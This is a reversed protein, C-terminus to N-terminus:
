LMEKLQSTIDEATESTRTVVLVTDDGAVCGLVDENDMRDISMGVTSAGGPVTKIVVLNQAPTISLVAHRYINAINSSFRKVHATEKVYRQRGKDSIKVLGLEKIDRSVTAQTVAFGSAVLESALEEQTEIPKEVIVELIKFQRANRAM